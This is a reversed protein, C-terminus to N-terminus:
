LVSLRFLHQKKMEFHWFESQISLHKGTPWVTVLMEARKLQHMVFQQFQRAGRPIKKIMYEQVRAVDSFLFKFLVSFLMKVQVCVCTVSVYNRFGIIYQSFQKEQLIQHIKKTERNGHKLQGIYGPHLIIKQFYNNRSDRIRTFFITFM